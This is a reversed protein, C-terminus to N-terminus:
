AATCVAVWGGIGMCGPGGWGARVDADPLPQQAGDVADFFTFNVGRSVLQQEAAARRETARELSIVYIPFHPFPADSPLEYRPLAAKAQALAEDQFPFM